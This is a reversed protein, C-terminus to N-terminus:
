GLRTRLAERADAFDRPPAFRIPLSDGIRPVAAARRKRLALLALSGAIMGLGVGPEPLFVVAGPEDDLSTGSTTVFNEYSGTEAFTLALAPAPPPQTGTQYEFLAEGLLIGSGSVGGTADLPDFHAGWYVVEGAVGVDADGYPHSGLYWDSENKTADLLRLLASDYSLTVGFTRLPVAIDARIEVRLRDPAEAIAVPRIEVDAAPAPQSFASVWTLSAWAVSRVLRFRNRKM